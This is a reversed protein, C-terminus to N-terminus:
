KGRTPRDAKLNLPPETNWYWEYSGQVVNASRWGELADLYQSLVVVVDSNTPLSDDAFEDFDQFPKFPPVLLSNATRLRENVVKLKFANLSNDPKSKSLVAIEEHLKSLQNQVREFVEVDSRKVKAM